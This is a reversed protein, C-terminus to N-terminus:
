KPALVFRWVGTVQANPATSALSRVQLELPGDTFQPSFAFYHSDQVPSAQEQPQAGDAGASQARLVVVWATDAVEKSVDVGIQDGPRVELLKPTSQAFSCGGDSGPQKKPDQGEFCYSTADSHVTRGGSVVSVIPTPKDVGSCGALLLSAAATGAALLRPPRM